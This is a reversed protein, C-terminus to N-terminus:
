EQPLEQEESDAPSLRWAAYVVSAAGPSATKKEEPAWTSVTAHRGDGHSYVVRQGGEDRARPDSARFGQAEFNRTMADLAAEADMEFADVQIRREPVDKVVTLDSRLHYSFPMEFGGPLASDLQRPQFGDAVPGASAAQGAPASTAPEPVDGGGCAALCLPLTAVALMMFIKKM